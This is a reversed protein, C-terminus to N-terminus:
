APWASGAQPIAYWPLPNSQLENCHPALGKVAKIFAVGHENLLLHDVAPILAALAVSRPAHSWLSSAEILALEPHIVLSYDLIFRNIFDFPHLHRKM